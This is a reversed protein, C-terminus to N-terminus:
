SRCLVQLNVPKCAKLGHEAPPAGPVIRNRGRSAGEQRAWGALGSGEKPRKACRTPPFM